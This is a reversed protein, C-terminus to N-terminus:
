TSATFNIDALDLTDGVSITHKVFCQMVQGNIKSGNTSNMDAIKLINQEYTVHLHASSIQRDKILLDSFNPIRGIVLGRESLAASRKITLKLPAGYSDFGSLIMLTQHSTSPTKDDARSPMPMPNHESSRQPAASNQSKRNLFLFALLGAIVFLILVLLLKVWTIESPPAKSSPQRETKEQEVPAINESEASQLNVKCPVSTTNLKVKRSVGSTLNEVAISFYDTLDGDNSVGKANIGVVESCENLLPGGSIGPRLEATHQVLWLESLKSSLRGKFYQQIIGKTVTSSPTDVGYVAANRFVTDPYGFAYVSEGPEPRLTSFTLPESGKIDIKLLALDNKPSVWIVTAKKDKNLAEGVVWINQAGTVVHQNTLLHGATSVFFGSGHGEIDGADDLIAVVVLSQQSIQVANLAGSYFILGILISPLYSKLPLMRWKSRITIM